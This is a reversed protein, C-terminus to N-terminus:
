QSPFMQNRDIYTYISTTKLIFQMYVINKYHQVNNLGQEMIFTIILYM